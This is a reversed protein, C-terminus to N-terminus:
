PRTLPASQGSIWFEVQSQGEDHLSWEGKLMPTWYSLWSQWSSALWIISSASLCRYNLCTPLRRTKCMQPSDLARHPPPSLCFLPTLITHYQLCSVAWIYVNSCFWLHVTLMIQLHFCSGPLYWQSMVLIDCDNALFFADSKCPFFSIM